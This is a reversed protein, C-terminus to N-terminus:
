NAGAALANTLATQTSTSAVSHDAQNAQQTNGTHNDAEKARTTHAITTRLLPQRLKTDPANDISLIISTSNRAGDKGERTKAQQNHASLKM